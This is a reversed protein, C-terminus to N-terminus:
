AFRSRLDVFNFVLEDRADGDVSADIDRHGCEASLLPLITNLHDHKEIETSEKIEYVRIEFRSYLRGDLEDAGDTLVEFTPTDDPLEAGDSVDFYGADTMLAKFDDIRHM